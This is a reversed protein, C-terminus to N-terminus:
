KKLLSPLLTIEDKAIEKIGFKQFSNALEPALFKLLEIPSKGDLKEKPASNIHSIVLNLNEQSKLGLEYLDKQKPLIYRLEIHNNELSGKQCSQMPDCYFVRTRYESPRIKELEHARIFESGRDPLIVAVYKKFLEVGIIRCLLAIGKNMELATKEKHLIAFMFGFRVFKFTQIFPGNSGDNYVTDMQVINTEGSENIYNLYDEYKRGILYSRDQRKKLKTEKKKKTPKRSVQRRLSFSDVGFEKFIGAEIYNYLSREVIGIEPHNKCIHYPSQGKKFLPAIINGIFNIEDATLNFGERATRLKTKYNRDANIANYTAKTYHCSQKNSCGNCAGPSTDRRYCKFQIYHECPKTCSNKNSCKPFNICEVPYTRQTKYYIKNNTIEKGITSKDKNLKRAIDIKLMGNYICKEIELRENLNLHKGNYQKSM